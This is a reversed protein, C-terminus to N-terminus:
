VQAPVEVSYVKEGALNRLEVTMVRHKADVRLLGFFQLGESPPRNPKMGPPIGVFLVEPGFTPDLVAPGFTGAHLPGAVFEWFPDFETFRARTPDYHHAAAYHVDGTVFVVNRVRREKLSRLLSALELERGLPPGPDGQAVAEFDADGDPVVLGLPMDCAVVKFLARSAALREGLWRLQASGFIEAASSMAAQRNPSNPARYSRLDVVFIEVLPGFPLARYIRTPDAPDRRLAAYELFGQRAHQALVAVRKETYRPDTLVQTPYWNNRIEHDDWQLVLPVEANFRRANEDLLNYRWNGRFDDLSEAVKGKTEAVVNKWVTGDDLKLEPLLPNDAYITDGCHLFVDPAARRLNEYMRLGGWERNIGYGQGCTDASWALVVDAPDRSPTKFRGTLPVSVGKADRLDEFSVRYVITQGAPLGRLDVQATFDTDALAAPGRVRRSSAFSESTSWEVYLRAPRDTRAWVVAADGSVDGVQTGWAASPRAAQARVFAPAGLLTGSAAATGRRLFQRRKV